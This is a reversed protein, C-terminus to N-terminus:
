TLFSLEEHVIMSLGIKGQMEIILRVRELDALTDVAVTNESMELM